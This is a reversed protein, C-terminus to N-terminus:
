MDAGKVQLVDWGAKFARPHFDQGEINIEPDFQGM